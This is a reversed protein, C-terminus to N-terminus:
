LVSSAKPWPMAESKSIFLSGQRYSTPIEEYSSAKHWSKHQVFMNINKPALHEFIAKANKENHIEIIADTHHWDAEETALLLKSEHGEVDIKILDAWKFVPHIPEVVVKFTEVEGYPQKSGAIHSATTNGLVRVFDVEGAKVSVAAKHCEVDNIGNLKLNRRLIEFHVPDPEYAKVQFGCQRMVISHLGLNAGIDSVRRYLKRNTWYFGLIILEGLGFLDLSDIAGMKHYPLCISGIPGFDRAVPDSSKFRQEIEQRAISKLYNYAKSGPLHLAPREVLAEFLQSLNSM